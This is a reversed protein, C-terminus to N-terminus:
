LVTFTNVQFYAELTLFQRNRPRRGLEPINVILNVAAM